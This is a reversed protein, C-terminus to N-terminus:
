GLIVVQVPLSITPKTGMAKFTLSNTGQTSVRIAAEQMATFQADTLTAPAGVVAKASATMGSVTVTQTYPASSGSWSTSLTVSVTVANDAKAAFQTNHAASASNHINVAGSEEFDGAKKGSDALNGSANLAAFNGVSAPIAKDAKDALESETAVQAAKNAPDYVSKLMDGSGQGDAGKPIGFDFM